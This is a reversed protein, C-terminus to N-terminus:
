HDGEITNRSKSKVGRMLEGVYLGKLFKPRIIEKLVTWHSKMLLLKKKVTEVLESVM